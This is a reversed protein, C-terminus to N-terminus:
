FGSGSVVRFVLGKAVADVSPRLVGDPKFAALQRELDIIRKGARILKTELDRRRRELKECDNCV